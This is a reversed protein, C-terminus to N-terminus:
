DGGGDFRYVASIGTGVKLIQSLLLRAQTGLTQEVAVVDGPKIPCNLGSGNIEFTAAIIEGSTKQRYVKVYEPAALDNVGGAFALAQMLTYKEGVPYPFAGTQKVLGIVTFYEPHLGVVEVTDGDRLVVDDFPINLGVVPLILPELQGSRDAHKIRIIGAGNDVIGGAKMLVNVLSMENGACGFVGPRRVAGVVAVRSERYSHVEVVISPPNVLLKPYYSKVSADEIEDLTMGNVSVTGVIPLNITGRRSVRCLYPELKVSWNPLEEAGARMVAPMSLSLVDGPVVRYPGVFHNAQILRDMDVEPWVPHALDFEHLESVSSVDMVDCGALGVLLGCSLVCKVLVVALYSIVGCALGGSYLGRCLGGRWPSGNRRRAGFARCVPSMDFRDYYDQM